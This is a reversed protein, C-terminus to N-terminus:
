ARKQAAREPMRRPRPATKTRRKSNLWADIQAPDYQVRNGFKIYEPGTGDCRMEALTKPSVGIREAAEEPTLRKVMSIPIM